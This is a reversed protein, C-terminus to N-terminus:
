NVIATNAIAQLFHPVIVRWDYNAVVFDRTPKTVPPNALTEVIAAAMADPTDAVRCHTPNLGDIGEVGLSTSVIPVELAMAELVKLRVGGGIRMPVVYAHAGCLYARTDPVEGTLSVEGAAQLALLVPAPRRGVAVLVVDSVAKRVLPLVQAVFWRLADINPRYDLTGSFVLTPRVFPHPVVRRRDFYGTDVGNPVVYPTVTPVLQSLTQADGTSVATVGNVTALMNKEFYKLKQWQILSYLAGHWRLPNSADTMAARQQIVYEANFEDFLTPIGYTKAMALYPAMEISFAIVVDFYRQQLLVELQQRYNVDVNRLAMDPLPDTLTQVARQRLSRTAPGAVGIVTVPAVQAQVAAQDTINTVFTLCTVSHTHAIGRLLQYIRMTGGGYPPWPAYPTLALIKM